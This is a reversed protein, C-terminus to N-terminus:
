GVKVAEVDGARKENERTRGAVPAPSGYVQRVEFAPRKYDEALYNQPITTENGDRLSTYHPSNIEV